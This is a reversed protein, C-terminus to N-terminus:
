RPLPHAHREYAIGGVDGEYITLGPLGLVDLVRRAQAMIEPGIGDGPLCTIKM